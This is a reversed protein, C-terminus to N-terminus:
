FRTPRDPPSCFPDSALEPKDKCHKEQQKKVVKGTIDATNKANYDSISAHYAVEMANKMAASGRNETLVKNLNFADSAVYSKPQKVLLFGIIDKPFDPRKQDDPTVKYNNKAMDKTFTELGDKYDSYKGYGDSLRKEFMHNYFDDSLRGSKIDLGQKFDSSVVHKIESAFPFIEKPLKFEPMSAADGICPILLQILQIGVVQPDTIKSFRFPIPNKADEASCERITALHATSAVIWQDAADINTSGPTAVFAETRPDISNCLGTEKNLKQHMLCRQWILGTTNDTATGDNNITWRTKPENCGTLAIMAAITLLLHKM